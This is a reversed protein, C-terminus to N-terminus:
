SCSFWLDTATIEKTVIWGKRKNVKRPQQYEPAMEAFLSDIKGLQRSERDVLAPTALEEKASESWSNWDDATETTSGITRQSPLGHLAM